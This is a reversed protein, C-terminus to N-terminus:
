CSAKFIKKLPLPSMDWVTSHNQKKNKKFSGRGRQRDRLDYGHGLRSLIQPSIATISLKLQNELNLSWWQAEVGVGDCQQLVAGGQGRGFRSGWGGDLILNSGGVEGYLVASIFVLVSGLAWMEDLVLDSGQTRADM